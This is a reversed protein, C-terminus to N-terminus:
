SGAPVGASGPETGSVSVATRLRMRSSTAPAIAAASSLGGRDLGPSHCQRLDNNYNYYAAM